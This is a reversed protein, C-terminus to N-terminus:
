PRPTLRHPREASLWLDLSAKNIRWSNGIKFGPLEGRRVVRYVTAPHVRLIQAVETITLVSELEGQWRAGRKVTRREPLSSEANDLDGRM